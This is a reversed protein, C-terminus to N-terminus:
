KPNVDPEGPLIRLESRFVHYDSFSVDNLLTRNVAHIPRSDKVNTTMKGSQGVSVAVSRVPCIYTKGGIEVTAYEVMVDGRTIPADGPLDAILAIRLIAGSDPDIAVEGHYASHQQVESAEDRSPSQFAVTYHSQSEPVKYNFVAEEGSPGNEWHDFVMEGHAADVIMMSLIPGFTGRTTLGEERHQSQRSPNGEPNLVEKGDRYQVVTTTKGVIRWSQGGTLAAETNIPREPTDQYRITQRQAFFNPLKPITKGLYDVVKSLMKRQEAVDPRPKAVIENAPLQLFASEDGIAVIAVRSKEGPLKSEFDVLAATSLRQTLRLGYIERAADADSVGTLSGLLSCLQEVSVPERIFRPTPHFVLVPRGQRNDTNRKQEELGYNPQNYYGAIAHATLGPKQLIVTLDRYEDPTETRPPNFSLTYYTDADAIFGKVQEDLTRDRNVYSLGGRGGTRIAMADLSLSRADLQSSKKVGKAYERFYFGSGEYGGYLTIRAHRLAATLQVLANFELKQDRQDAETHHKEPPEPFPWGQGLWVVLKRGPERTESQALAVLAQVSLAFQSLGRPRVRPNLKSIADALANGDTSPGALTELGDKTFLLLTTPHALQGGNEVLCRRLGQRIFALETFGNNLADIVLILHSASAPKEGGGKFSRFSVIKTPQGGDLLTFDQEALDPVRKGDADTVVVDLHLFGEPISVVDAASWSTRVPEAPAGQQGECNCPVSFFAFIVLAFIRIIRGDMGITPM